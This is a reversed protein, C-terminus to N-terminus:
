KREEPESQKNPAYRDRRATDKKLMAEEGKLWDTYGMGRFRNIKEQRRDIRNQHFQYWWARSEASMQTQIEEIIDTHALNTQETQTKM